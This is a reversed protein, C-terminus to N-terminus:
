KVEVMVIQRFSSQYYGSGIHWDQLRTSAHVGEAGGKM